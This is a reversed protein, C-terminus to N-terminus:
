RGNSAAASDPPAPCLELMPRPSVAKLPIPANATVIEDMESGPILHTYTDLTMSLNKHGMWKQIMVPNVRRAFLISAFTHRCEHLNVRELGADKWASDARRQLGTSAFPINMVSRQDWGLVLEDRNRGHAIWLQYHKSCLGKSKRERLCPTGDRDVHLCRGVPRKFSSAFFVPGDETGLLEQRMRWQQEIYPILRNLIPIRRITRNKTPGFVKHTEDWSREVTIWGSPDIHRWELGMIEGKRMGTFFATAWIPQDYEPVAEILRDAEEESVVRDRPGPPRPLVLGETPDVGVEDARVARRYLVKLPNLCNAITAPALGERSLDDVIRQLEPRTIASVKRNGIRPIWTNQVHLEYGYYSGPKFPYRGTTLVSGDKMGAVLEELADRITKNGPARRIGKRVETKAEAQWQRAETKTRFTKTIRRRDRKSYVKAQYTPTCNCKAQPNQEAPCSRAHREYIGTSGNSRAM